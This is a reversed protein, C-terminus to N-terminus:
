SQVEVAELERVDFTSGHRMGDVFWSTEVLVRSVVMHPSHPRRVLRTDDEPHGTARVLMGPQVDETKM